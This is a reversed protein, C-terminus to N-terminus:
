PLTNFSHNLHDRIFTTHATQTAKTNMNRETDKEEQKKEKVFKSDM